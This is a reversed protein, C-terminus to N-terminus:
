TSSGTLALLVSTASVGAFLSTAKDCGVFVLAATVVAGGLISLFKM